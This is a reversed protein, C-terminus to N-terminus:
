RTAGTGVAMAMEIVLVLGNRGVGAGEGSAYARGGNGGRFVVEGVNARVFTLRLELLALAM